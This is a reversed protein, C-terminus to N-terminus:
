HWGECTRDPTRACWDRHEREARSADYTEHPHHQAWWARHMNEAAPEQRVVCGSLLLAATIAFAMLSPKM